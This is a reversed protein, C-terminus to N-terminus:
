VIHLSSVLLLLSLYLMRRFPMLVKLQVLGCPPSDTMFSNSRNLDYHSGRYAIAWIQYVKSVIFGLVFSLFIGLSYDTFIAFERIDRKDKM